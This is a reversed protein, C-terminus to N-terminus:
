QSGDLFSEQDDDSHASGIYEPQDNAFKKVWAIWIAAGISGLIVFGTLGFLLFQPLGLSSYVVPCTALTPLTPTTDNVVCATSPNSLYGTLQMYEGSCGEAPPAFQAACAQSLSCTGNALRTSCLDCAYNASTCPCPNFRLDVTFSSSLSCTTQANKRNYTPQGPLLCTSLQVQQIDAAGCTTPLLSYFNLQKIEQHNTSTTAQLLVFAHASSYIPVLELSAEGLDKPCSTWTQGQDTSVYFDFATEEHDVPALPVLVILNALSDMSIYFHGQAVVSWSSGGDLSRALVKVTTGTSVASLYGNALVLGPAQASTVPANVANDPFLNLACSTPLNNSTCESASDVLQIAAWDVGNNSSFVTTTTPNVTQALLTGPLDALVTVDNLRIHSLVPAYRLPQPAAADFASATFLLDTMAAGPQTVHRTGMVTAHAVDLVVSSEVLEFSRGANISAHVTANGLAFIVTSTANDVAATTSVLLSTVGEDIVTLGATGFFTSSYLVSGTKATLVLVANEETESNTWIATVVPGGVVLKTFTSSVLVYASLRTPQQEKTPGVVLLKGATTPNAQVAVVSLTPATTKTYTQGFDSTKWFVNLYRNGATDNRALALLWVTEPDNTAILQGLLMTSSDFGPLNSNQATWVQGSDSSRYLTGASSLFMLSTSVHGANALVGPSSVTGDIFSSTVTLSSSCDQIDRQEPSRSSGVMALSVLLLAFSIWTLGCAM